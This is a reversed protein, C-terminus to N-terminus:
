SADFSSAIWLACRKMLSAPQSATLSSRPPLETSRARAITRAPAAYYTELFDHLRREAATPSPDLALTVYAAGTRQLLPIPSLRAVGVFEAGKATKGYRRGARTSPEVFPELSFRLSYGDSTAAIAHVPPEAGEKSPRVEGIVRPDLSM